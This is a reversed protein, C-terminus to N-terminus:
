PIRHFTGGRAGRAHGVRTIPNFFCRASKPIQSLETVPIWNWAKKPFRQQVDRQANQALVNDDIGFLRRNVLHYVWYGQMNVELWLADISQLPERGHLRDGPFPEIVGHSLQPYGARSDFGDSASGPLIVQEAQRGGDAPLHTFM